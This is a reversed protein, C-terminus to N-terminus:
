KAAPSRYYTSIELALQLQGNTQQSRQSLQVSRIALFAESTEVDYIFHLVSSYDGVLEVKTTLRELPTDRIAENEWGRNGLALNNERALKAIELM